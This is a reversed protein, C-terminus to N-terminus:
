FFTELFSRRPHTDQRLVLCAFYICIVRMQFFFDLEHFQSVPPMNYRTALPSFSALRKRPLDGSVLRVSPVTCLHWLGMRAIM